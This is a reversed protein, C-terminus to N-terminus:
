RSIYTKLGCANLQFNIKLNRNFRIATFNNCYNGLFTGTFYCEFAISVTVSKSLKRSTNPFCLVDKNIKRQYFIVVDRFSGNIARVWVLVMGDSVNNVVKMLRIYKLSEVITFSLSIKISFLWACFKYLWEFFETTIKNCSFALSGKSCM